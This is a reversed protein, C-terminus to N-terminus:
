PKRSLPYGGPIARTKRTAAGGIALDEVGRLKGGCVAREGKASLHPYGM